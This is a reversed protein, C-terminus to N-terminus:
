REWLAIKVGTVTSVPSETFGAARLASTGDGDRGAVWVRDVKALAAPTPPRLEDWYSGTHVFSGAYALDVLGDFDEPYAALATRPRLAGVGESGLLFADGPASNVAITHAIERFDVGGPKADPFRTTVAFPLACILWAAGAWLASCRRWNMVAFGCLIALAPTSVTLYRPTFLPMDILSVALMAICPFLLWLLLAIRDRLYQGRDGARLALICLAAILPLMWVAWSFFPEVLVTWPDIPQEALWAVQDRQRLMLFLLPTVLAVPLLLIGSIQITNRKRSREPSWSLLALAPLVLIAYAFFWASVGAFLSLAIGDRLRGSQRLRRAFLASVVLLATAIMYSRAEISQLITRPLALFVVAAFLSATPSPGFERCLLYIFAAAIGAALASPFRVTFESEGALRISPHLLAGYAAHVADRTTVFDLFDSWPLRALRLSAAEDYWFSPIWSAVLHALTGAVAIVAAIRGDSFRPLRM